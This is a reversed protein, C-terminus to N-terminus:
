PRCGSESPPHSASSTQRFGRRADIGRPSSTTRDLWLSQRSRSGELSTVFSTRQARLIPVVESQSSKSIKHGKIVLLQRTSGLISLGFCGSRIQQPIHCTSNRRRGESRSRLLRGHLPAAAILNVRHIKRNVLLDRTVGMMILLDVGVYFWFGPAAGIRATKGM